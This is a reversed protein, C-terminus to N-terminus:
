AEDDARDRPRGGHPTRGDTESTIGIESCVNARYCDNNAGITLSFIQRILLMAQRGRRMVDQHARASSGRYRPALGTHAPGVCNFAALRTAGGVGAQRM